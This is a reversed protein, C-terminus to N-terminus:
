PAGGYTEIWRHAHTPSCTTFHSHGETGPSDSKKLAWNALMFPMEYSRSRWVDTAVRPAALVFAPGVIGLEVSALGREGRVRRPNSDSPSMTATSPMVAVLRATSVAAGALRRTASVM